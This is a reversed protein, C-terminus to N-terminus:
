TSLIYDVAEALDDFIRAERLARSRSAALERETNRGKGTRVLIPQCGRAVGAELDRLSDGVLPVGSLDIDGFDASIADLLGPEPKRCACDDGPGHPCFYVGDLSGGADSVLRALKHNMEELDDMDFYGRALGSQNTAVVVRFGAQSLRAIAEISGPIPHLQEHSRIHEDSDVNIVGDRDLIVLRM